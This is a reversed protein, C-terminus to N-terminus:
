ERARELPEKDEHRVALDARRGLRDPVSALARREACAPPSRGRATWPRPTRPTRRCTMSSARTSWDPRPRPLGPPRDGRAIERGEAVASECQVGGAATPLM